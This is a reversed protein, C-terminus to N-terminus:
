KKLIVFDVFESSYLNIAIYKYVNNLFLSDEYFSIKGDIFPNFSPLIYIKQELLNINEKIINKNLSMLNRKYKKFVFEENILTPNCVAFCKKAKNSHRLAPHLHGMFIKQSFLFEVQPYANGHFFFCNQNSIKQSFGSSPHIEIQLKSQFYKHLREIGGDHNGKVVKIKIENSFIQVLSDFFSFVEKDITKISNKLDGLIIIQEWTKRKIKLFTKCKELKKIMEETAIGFRLGIEEEIGLHLDSLILNGKFYISNYEFLLFVENRQM